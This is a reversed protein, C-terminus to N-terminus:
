AKGASDANRGNSATRDLEEQSRPRSTSPSSTPVTEQKTRCYRKACAMTSHAVKTLNDVKAETRATALASHLSLAMHMLRVASEINPCLDKLIGVATRLSHKMESFSCVKSISSMSEWEHPDANLQDLHGKVRQADQQCGELEHVVHKESGGLCVNGREAEKKIQVLLDVRGGLQQLQCELRRINTAMNKTEKCNRVVSRGVKVVVEVIAIVGAVAGIVEAM